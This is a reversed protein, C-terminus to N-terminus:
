RLPPGDPPQHLGAHRWALWRLPRAIAAAHAGQFRTPDQQALVELRGRPRGNVEIVHLEGDEDVVLDVGLEIAAEPGLAADFAAGVRLALAALARQQRPRLRDQAPGVEAGRAANVVPDTKSCRLVAECLMWGAAPERQLLARICWGAWGRPPPVARQLLAPDTAGPVVGQLQAPLPDGPRVREVGV